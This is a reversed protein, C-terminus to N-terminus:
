GASDTAPLDKALTVVKGPGIRYWGGRGETLLSGLHGRHFGLPVIARIIQPM